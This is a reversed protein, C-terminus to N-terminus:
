RSGGGSPPGDRWTLAIVARGPALEEVRSEGELKCIELLSELAGAVAGLWAEDAVDPHLDDIVLRGEVLSVSDLRMTGAGQHLEHFGKPAWKLMAGASVGFLRVVAQLLGSLTGSELHELTIACALRAADRPGLVARLARWLAVDISTPLWATRSTAAVEALASASMLGLVASVQEAHRAALFQLTSRVHYARVRPPPRGAGSAPESDM